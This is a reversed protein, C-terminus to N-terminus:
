VQWVVRTTTVTATLDYRHVYTHHSPCLLAMNQLSTSGGRHWPVVHHADCWSPPRSSGPFSCMRDRVTLALRLAPTVLRHRRGVDLPESRSGLVVPVIAGDCALRRAAAPTLVDGTATVATGRVAGDLTDHDVFVVVKAKDTTPARDSGAVGRRVLEILADARRRAPDRPDAAVVDGRENKQPDPASLADVASKVVSAGEPDLWGHMRVMGLSEPECFSLRRSARRREDLREQEENWAAAAAAAAEDSRGDAGDGRADAGDGTGEAGSDAGGAADDGGSASPEHGRPPRLQETHHRVLRALEEPRATAAASRLHEVASWLEAPDAVREVREVFDVVQAACAVAVRRTVVDARLGSWRTSPWARAVTVFGKAAPASLGPNLTRLWDIPSLAGPLEAGRDLLEALASVLVVDHDARASAVHEVSRVLSQEGYRHLPMGVLAEITVGTPPDDGSLDARRAPGNAEVSRLWAEDDPDCWDVTALLAEVQNGRMVATPEGPDDGRAAQGSGPSRVRNVADAWVGRAQAVRPPPAALGGRRAACSGGADEPRPTAKTTSGLSHLFEDSARGGSRRQRAELAALSSRLQELDADTTTM